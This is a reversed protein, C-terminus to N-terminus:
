FLHGQVEVLWARHESYTKANDTLGSDPHTQIRNEIWDIMAALRTIAAAIVEEASFASQQPASGYSALFVELRQIMTEQDFPSASWSEEMGAQRQPMLPVFRYATYAIDWIRPGPACLDFDILGVFREERFICNYPAFDRHVIVEEPSAPEWNWVALARDFSTSADHLQRLRKAADVLLDKNWFWAPPVGAVPDGEIYSLVERGSEDLGLPEPVWDVGSKRLHTLLKQITASASTATRRVANGSKVVESMNGGSLPVEQDDGCTGM